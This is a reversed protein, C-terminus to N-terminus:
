SNLYIYSVLMVVFIEISRTKLIDKEDENPMSRCLQIYTLYLLISYQINFISYCYELRSIFFVIRISYKFFIIIFTRM